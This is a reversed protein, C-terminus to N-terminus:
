ASRHSGGSNGAHLTTAKSSPVHRMPSPGKPLHRTRTGLAWRLWAAPSFPSPRDEEESFRVYRISHDLPPLPDEIITFSPGELHKWDAARDVRAICHYRVDGM